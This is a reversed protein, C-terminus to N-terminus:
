KPLYKKLHPPPGLLKEVAKVDIEFKEAVAVIARARAGRIGNEAAIRKSVEGQIQARFMEDPPRGKPRKLVFRPLFPFRPDIADALLLRFSLPVPNALDRLYTGLTQRALLEEPGDKKLHLTRLHGRASRRVYGKFWANVVLHEPVELRRKDDAM